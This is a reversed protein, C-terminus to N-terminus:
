TRQTLPGRDTETRHDSASAGRADIGRLLEFSVVKQDEASASKRETIRRHDSVVVDGDRLLCLSDTERGHVPDTGGLGERPSQVVSDASVHHTAESGREWYRRVLEDNLPEDVFAAIGWGL